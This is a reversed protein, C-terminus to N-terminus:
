EDNCSTIGTVDVLIGKPESIIKSLNFMVLVTLEIVATPGLCTQWGWSINRTGDCGNCYARESIEAQPLAGGLLIEM